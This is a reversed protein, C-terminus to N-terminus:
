HLIIEIDELRSSDLSNIFLVLSIKWPNTCQYVSFIAYEFEKIQM